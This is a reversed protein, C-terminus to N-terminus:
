EEVLFARAPSGDGGNIKLPLCALTYKGPKIGRLDLGEIVTVGAGLLMRHVPAGNDFSGISLYDIGVTKLHDAAWRAGSEDLYVFDKRFEGYNWLESNRTKLLVIDSKVGRLDDGTVAKEVRTMDVVEARGYLHDVPIMDVTYGTEVFHIPPDVHTGTHTGMCMLSVNAPDVPMSLIRKIDPAPDGPFTPMGNYLGVSIDYIKM